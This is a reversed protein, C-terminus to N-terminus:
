GRGRPVITIVWFDPHAGLRLPVRSVGLGSTVVTTRGGERIIGCAYRRGYNSRTELPGILPLRIQGCHTHGALALEIGPPLQPVIDPSHTFVIPVGGVRDGAALALPVRDHHTFADSVGIVALPGARVASNDLVQVGYRKLWFSVREARPYDHNGLVAFVGLPAKLGALPAVNRRPGYDGFGLDGMFDGALVIVDPHLASVRRVTDTLRQETDGIPATHFDSLLVIRLPRAGAPLGTLQVILDREVPKAGAQWLMLAILALVLGAAIALRKFWRRVTM